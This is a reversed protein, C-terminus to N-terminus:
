SCESLNGSVEDGAHSVPVKCLPVLFVYYRMFNFSFKRLSVEKTMNEKPTLGDQLVATFAGSERVTRANSNRHPSLFVAPRTATCVDSEKAIHVYPLNTNASNM